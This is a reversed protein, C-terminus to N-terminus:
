DGGEGALNQRQGGVVQLLPADPTGPNPSTSLRWKASTLHYTQIPPAFALFDESEERSNALHRSARLEDLYKIPVAWFSMLGVNHRIEGNIDQIKQEAVEPPVLTAKNRMEWWKLRHALHQVRGHVSHDM